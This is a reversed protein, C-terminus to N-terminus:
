MWMWNKFEKNIKKLDGGAPILQSGDKFTIILVQPHKDNKPLQDVKNKFGCFELYGALPDVIYWGSGNIGGTTKYFPKAFKKAIEVIEKKQEDTMAKM